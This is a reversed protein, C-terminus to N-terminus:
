NSNKSWVKSLYGRITEEDGICKMNAKLFLSIVKKSNPMKEEDVKYFYKVEPSNVKPVVGQSWLSNNSRAINELVESLKTATVTPSINRMAWERPHYKGWNERFHLLTDKLGEEDILHGTENNIYQKNVGINKKLVIGPVNAFLGEFISRNSGEKLSLLVNVKSKNLVENVQVQPLGDYTIINKKIGFYDILHSVEQKANGWKGFILAVRYDPDGIKKVAKFLLHHRKVPSYNTVYVADYEKELGEIPRFIRFDVWDSAGFSVPVLNSKLSLLFRFDREETTQVIIPDYPYKM